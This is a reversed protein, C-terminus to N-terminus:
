RRNKVEVFHESIHYENLCTSVTAMLDLYNLFECFSRDAFRLFKLIRISYQGIKLVGEATKSHYKEEFVLNKKVGEYNWIVVNKKM